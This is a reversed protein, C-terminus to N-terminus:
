DMGLKYCRVCSHQSPKLGHKLAIRECVKWAKEKSEYPGHWTTTVTQNALWRKYYFCNIHHVKPGTAGELDEFVVYKCKQGAAEKEKLSLSKDANKPQHLLSKHANGYPANRKGMIDWKEATWCLIDFLRLNTLHIPLNCTQQALKEFADRQKIMIERILDLAQLSIDVQKNKDYDSINIGLLFHIVFSDLVPILKPRKLHLIKTAKALGIGRISLFENFLKRIKIKLDMWEEDSIDHLDVNPISSLCAQVTGAHSLLRRSEEGDYRDIMAYLKNAADIDKETIRDNVSHKDDYGKYIEIECYERIRSEPDVFVIDERLKIM